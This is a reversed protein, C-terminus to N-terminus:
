CEPTHVGGQAGTCKSLTAGVSSSALMILAGDDGDTVWCVGSGHESSAPQSIVILRSRGEGGRPRSTSASLAGVERDPIGSCCGASESRIISDSEKGSGENAIPYL